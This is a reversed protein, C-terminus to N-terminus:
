VGTYMIYCLAYYPPMHSKYDTAGGVDVNNETVASKSASTTVALNTGVQLALPPASVLNHTHNALTVNHKHLGCNVAHFHTLAGGNDDPNYSSGAGLVFSNRLDPTGADGDCLHWLAPIDPVAGKWLVIM